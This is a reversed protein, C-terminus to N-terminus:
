QTSQMFFMTVKKVIDQNNTMKSIEHAALLALINAFDLVEDVEEESYNSEIYKNNFRRGIQSWGGHTYSCMSSFSSGKITSLVHVDFSPLEEIKNIMQAVSIDVKDEFFKIVDEDSAAYLIWLGRVYGEFVARLLAFGSGFLHAEVLLTISKQHELVVDFCGGAILDRKGTSIRAGHISDDIFASISKSKQILNSM